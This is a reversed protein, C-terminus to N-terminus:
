ISSRSIALVLLATCTPVSNNNKPVNLEPVTSVKKLYLSHSLHRTYNLYLKVFVIIIEFEQVNVTITINLLDSFLDSKM